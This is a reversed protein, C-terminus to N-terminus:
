TGATRAEAVANLAAQLGALHGAEHEAISELAFALLEDGDGGDEDIKLAFRQVSSAVLQTVRRSEGFVRATSAANAILEATARYPDSRAM